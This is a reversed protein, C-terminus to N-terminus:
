DKSVEVWEEKMRRGKRFGRGRKKCKTSEVYERDERSEKGVKGNRTESQVIGM